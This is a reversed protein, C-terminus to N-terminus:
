RDSTDLHDSRCEHREGDADAFLIGHHETVGRPLAQAELVDAVDHGPIPRSGALLGLHRREHVGSARVPLAHQHRERRVAPAEVAAAVRGAAGAPCRASAGIARRDPPEVVEVRPHARVRRPVLDVVDGLRREPRRAEGNPVVPHQAALATATMESHQRGIHQVGRVHPPIQPGEEPPRRAPWPQPPQVVVLVDVATGGSVGAQHQLGHRALDPQRLGAPDDLEAGLEGVRLRAGRPECAPHETQGAAVVRLPTAQARPDRAEVDVLPEAASPAEVRPDHVLVACGAPRVEHDPPM